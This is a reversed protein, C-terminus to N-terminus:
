VQVCALPLGVTTRVPAFVFFALLGVAGTTPEPCGERIHHVLHRDLDGVDVVERRGVRARILIEVFTDRNRQVGSAAVGSLSVSVNEQAYTPSGATAM